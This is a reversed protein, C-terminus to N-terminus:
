AVEAPESGGAVSRRWMAVAGVGMLVPVGVTFVRWVVLAAVAAAEIEQGGAEVLAALILADVVGIGSFPFLTLPYAFLYAIAVDALNVESPYVGVFRLCLLLVLVDTVVMGTLALMSRPFGRHFTASIDSRFTLCAQAWAEPDVARRVRRVLRGANTGITRALGESRLVLMIGVLIAVAVVISLLELWRLGPPQGTALLLAFGVAPASFRVVYFTLTNMVTGALGKAASVGWSTFMAVRLAVDSPPPAIVSMLIAGLDNLTARYASVGRIYFSLPLANLVQRVVVVALLVIPQWWTLLSLADRVAAWDVRGVLQVIVYTALLAVALLVVRTVWAPRGSHSRTSRLDGTGPAHDPTM